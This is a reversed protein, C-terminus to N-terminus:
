YKDSMKEIELALRQWNRGMEQTNQKLDQQRMVKSLRKWWLTVTNGFFEVALGKDLTKKYVLVGLLEYFIKTRTYAVRYSEKAHVKDYAEEDSLSLWEDLSGLNLLTDRQEAIDDLKGVLALMGEMQSALKAERLQQVVLWIGVATVLLGLIGELTISLFGDAFM